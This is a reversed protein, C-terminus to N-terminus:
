QNVCGEVGAASVAVDCIYRRASQRRGESPGDVGVLDVPRMRVKASCGYGYASSLLTVASGFILAPQLHAVTFAQMLGTGFILLALRVPLGGKRRQWLLIGVAGLAFLYLGESYIGGLMLVALYENHYMAPTYPSMLGLPMSTQRAAGLLILPDYAIAEVANQWIANRGSLDISAEGRYRILNSVSVPLTSLVEETSILRASLSVVVIASAVYVIRSSLKTTVVRYLLLMLGIVLSTKSGSVFCVFFASICGALTLWRVLLIRPRGVAYSCIALDSIFGLQARFLGLVANAAGEWDRSVVIHEGNAAYFLNTNAGGYVQAITAVALVITPWTFVCLWNEDLSV